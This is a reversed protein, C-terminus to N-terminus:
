AGAEGVGVAHAIAATVLNPDRVAELPVFGAGDANSTLLREAIAVALRTKGAGPPGTLTVLRVDDRRLLAEALSLEAERGILPAPQTPLPRQRPAPARLVSVNGSPEAGPM